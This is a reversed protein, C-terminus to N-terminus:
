IESAVLLFPRIMMIIKLIMSVEICTHLKLYSFTGVHHVFVYPGSPCNLMAIWFEVAKVKCKDETIM